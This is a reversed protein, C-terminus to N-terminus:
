TCLGRIARWIAVAEGTQWSLPSCSSTSYYNKGIKEVDVLTRDLSKKVAERTGVHIAVRQDPAFLSFRTLERKGVRSEDCLEWSVEQEEEIIIERDDLGGDKIIMKQKLMKGLFEVQTEICIKLQEDKDAVMEYHYEVEDM